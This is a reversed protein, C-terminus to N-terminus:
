TNHHRYRPLTSRAAILCALVLFRQPIRHSMLHIPLRRYSGVRLAKIMLSISSGLIFCLTLLLLLMDRLVKRSERDREERAPKEKPVLTNGCPRPAKLRQKKEETTEREYQEM